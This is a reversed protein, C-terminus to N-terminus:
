TVTVTGTLTVASLGGVTVLVRARTASTPVNGTAISDTNLQGVRSTYIGGVWTAGCLDNWVTGDPSHQIMVAVTSASTLTNLGNPITRDITIGASTNNGITLPGFTTLGVPVTQSIPFTRTPM